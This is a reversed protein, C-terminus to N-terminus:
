SENDLTPQGTRIWSRSSRRSIKNAKCTTSGVMSPALPTRCVMRKRAFPSCTPSRTSRIPRRDALEDTGTAASVRYYVYSRVRKNALLERRQIANSKGEEELKRNFLRAELIEFAKKRNQPQSRFSQVSVTEGTPLHTLKVKSDTAPLLTPGLDQALFGSVTSTNDALDLRGCSTLRSSLLTWYPLM